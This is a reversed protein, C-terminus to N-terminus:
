GIVFSAPRTPFLPCLCIIFCHFALYPSFLSVCARALHMHNDAFNSNRTAQSPLPMEGNNPRRGIKKRTSGNRRSSYGTGINYEVRRRSFLGLLFLLRYLNRLTIKSYKIQRRTRRRWYHGCLDDLIEFFPYFQVNFITTM